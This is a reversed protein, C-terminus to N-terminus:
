KHKGFREPASFHQVLVCVYVRMKAVQVCVHFVCACGQKGPVPGLLPPDFVGDEREKELEVGRRVDGPVRTVRTRAGPCAWGGRTRGREEVGGRQQM